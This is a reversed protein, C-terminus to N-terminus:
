EVRLKFSNLDPQIWELKHAARAKDLDEEVQERLTTIHKKYMDFIAEERVKAKDDLGYRKQFEELKATFIKWGKENAGDLERGSQKEAEDVAGLLEDALQQKNDINLEGLATSLFSRVDYGSCALKYDLDADIVEQVDPMGIQQKLKEVQDAYKKIAADDGTLPINISKLGKMLARYQQQREKFAALVLDEDGAEDEQAAQFSASESIHRLQDAQYLVRAGPALRQASTRGFKALFSM